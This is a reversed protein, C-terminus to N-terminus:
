ARARQGREGREREDDAGAAPVGLRGNAGLASGAGVTLAVGSAVSIGNAGAANGTSPVAHPM